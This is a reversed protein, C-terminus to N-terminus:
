ILVKDRHPAKTKYTANKYHSCILRDGVHTNVTVNSDHPILYAVDVISSDSYFRERICSRGFRSMGTM